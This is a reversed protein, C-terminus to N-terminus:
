KKNSMFQKWSENTSIINSTKNITQKSNIDKIRKRNRKLSLMKSTNLVTIAKKLDKPFKDYKTAYLNLLESPM